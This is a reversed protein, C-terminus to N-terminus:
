RLKADRRLGLGIFVSVIIGGLVTLDWPINSRQPLTFALIGPIVVVLIIFGEVFHWPSIGGWRAFILAIVGIGFYLFTPFLTFYFVQQFATLATGNAQALYNVYDSWDFAVLSVVSGMFFWVVIVWSTPLGKTLTRKVRGGASMLPVALVGSKLIIAGYTLVNMGVIIAATENSPPLVSLLGVAALNNLIHAIMVTALLGTVLGAFAAIVGATMLTGITVWNLGSSSALEVPVHAIGFIAGSALIGFFAGGAGFRGQTTTNVAWNTVAQIFLISESIGAQVAVLTNVSFVVNQPLVNLQLFGGFFSSVSGSLGLIPYIAADVMVFAFFALASGELILRQRTGTLTSVSRDVGADGAWQRGILQMLEIAIATLGLELNYFAVAFLLIIFFVIYNLFELNRSIPDSAVLQLKLPAM